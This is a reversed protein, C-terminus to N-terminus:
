VRTLSIVALPIHTGPLNKIKEITRLNNTTIILVREVSILIISIETIIESTLQEM